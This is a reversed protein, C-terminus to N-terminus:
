DNILAARISIYDGVTMKKIIIKEKQIQIGM